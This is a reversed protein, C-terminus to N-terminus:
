AVISHTAAGLRSIRVREHRDGGATIGLEHVHAGWAAQRDSNRFLSNGRDLRKHVITFGGRTWLLLEGADKSRESSSYTGMSHSRPWCARVFFGKLSATMARRLNEAGDRLVGAGAPLLIV